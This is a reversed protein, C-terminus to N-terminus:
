TRPHRIESLNRVHITDARVRRHGPNPPDTRWITNRHVGINRTVDVQLGGRLHVAFGSGGGLTPGVDTVFEFGLRDIGLLSGDGGWAVDLALGAAPVWWAEDIEITGVGVQEYEIRFDLYHLAVVPALAAAIEGPPPAVVDRHGLLAPLRLDAGLALLEYDARVADGPALVLDGLRATGVTTPAFPGEYDTEFLEGELHLAWGRGLDVDLELRPAAELDDLDLDPKIELRTGPAGNSADLSLTGVARAVHVGALLRVRISPSGDDAAAAAAAMPDDELMALSSGAVTPVPDGALCVGALVLVPLSRLALSNTSRM